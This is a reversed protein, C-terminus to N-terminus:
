CVYKKALSHYVRQYFCDAESVYRGNLEKIITDAVNRVGPDVVVLEDIKKNMTKNAAIREEQHDRDDAMYSCFVAWDRECVIDFVKAVTEVDVGPLKECLLEILHEKNTM